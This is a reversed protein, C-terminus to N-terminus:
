CIPGLNLKQGGSQWGGLILWLSVIKEKEIKYVIYRTNKKRFKLDDFEYRCSVDAGINM